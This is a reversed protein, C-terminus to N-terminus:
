ELTNRREGRRFAQINEVIEGVLRQRASRSAWAVHPTLV